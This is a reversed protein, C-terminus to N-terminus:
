VTKSFVPKGGHQHKERWYRDFCMALNRVFLEGLPTARITGETIEATGEEVHQQLSRLDEEFYDHFDIEYRKEVAAIDVRFNCMLEHIVHRRLEDDPLRRVGKRIPLLGAEVAAQYGSLKKENQVYSGGVDGIASVGLGIVDPAPIVSYGQFNRRLEHTRRARALEDDSRAFHDMGVPEYGAELFRERAMAFLALKTARDPFTEEQLKRQHGRMWPVFAFSYVAVRDLDMEIVADVTSSFGEMTQHPLGYILDANLGRFGRARAHSLLRETPERGQRRNIAEQVDPSFDQIGMSLRNFGLDALADIHELSTVRPDVEVALEAGSRAPFRELLYSLLATLDDPRYYTPTGGGLHLQAIGRRHSLHEGLLDIERRVCDLYPLAREYHPTIVVHCACFLCLEACFPLHMYVSLPDDPRRDAARLLGAYAEADMEGFEVATPYSTYRPGPRDYRALLEATVGRLPAPSPEHPNAM